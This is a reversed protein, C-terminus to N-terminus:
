GIWKTREENDSTMALLPELFYGILPLLAFRGAYDLYVSRKTLRWYDGFCILMLILASTLRSFEGRSLGAVVASHAFDGLLTDPQSLHTKQL